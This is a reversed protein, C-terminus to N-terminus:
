SINFTSIVICDHSKCLITFMIKLRVFVNNNPCVIIMIASNNGCSYCNIKREDGQPKRKKEKDKNEEKDDKAKEM